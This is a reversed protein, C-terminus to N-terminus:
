QKSCFNVHKKASGYKNTIQKGCFPCIGSDMLAKWRMYTEKPATRHYFIWDPPKNLLTTKM